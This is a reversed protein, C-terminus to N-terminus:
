AASPLEEPIRAYGLPQITVDGTMEQFSLVPLGPLRREILKHVYRRVDVNTVIIPKKGMQLVPQVMSVISTVIANELEPELAVFSGNPTYQIASRIVDQMEFDLLVASLLGDVVHAHSIQHSLACRVYETLAVADNEHSGFEALAELIAKLDRISVREDVLRRLVDTLQGLTVIKPVVEQVLTPCLKALRDVWESTEQLGVFRTANTVLVRSLYLGIIGDATWTSLGAAVVKSELSAPVYGCPVGSLPHLCPECEIGLRRLKSPHEVVLCRDLPLVEQLVPVDRIRIAFGGRPLGAVGLRVRVGPYRIGLQNYLSDRVEPVLKGLLMTDGDKKGPGFGLHEALSAELEVAIPVVTPAMMDMQARQAKAQKVKEAIQADFSKPANLVEPKTQRKHLAFATAALGFAIVTFPVVPLGPVLALAAAFSAGLALVKPSAFLESQLSGGLSAQPDKSAVRTTLVGASLTILLAPIQSVLGDGVTLISYVEAADSFSMGSRSVGIILGAVLNLATIVLGAIADGKIFKMAGDMAGYFQSERGLEDRKAQAEEEELAGSRLAADISMQKGPMADLTFRAGVEAVREAGKGIVLFQVLTIVLFIVVGVVLDGSVVFQGFAQVVEGATARSLIMRTTSVNLSLRFLTTILLLTPFTSISLPKDSLLVAVLVVAALALNLALMGDLLPAPLPLIMMALVAGVGVALTVDPHRAPADLPLRALATTLQKM